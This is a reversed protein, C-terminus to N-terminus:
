KLGWNESSKIFKGEKKMKEFQKKTVFYYDSEDETSNKMRTTHSICYDFLSGYNALVKKRLTEKGVGFPGCVIFPKDRVPTPNFSHFYEKAFLYM